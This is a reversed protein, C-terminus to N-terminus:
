GLTLRLDGHCTSALEGVRLDPGLLALRPAVDARGLAARDTDSLVAPPVSRTQATARSGMALLDPRREPGGGISFDVCRTGQGLLGYASDFSPLGTVSGGLRLRVADRHDGLTPQRSVDFLVPMAARGFHAPDDVLDDAPSPRVPTRPDLRPSMASSSSKISSLCPAAVASLASIAKRAIAPHSRALVVSIDRREGLFTARGSPPM